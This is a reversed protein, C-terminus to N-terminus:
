HTAGRTPAHISIEGTRDVPEDRYKDSGTHSRPNFNSLSSLQRELCFRREGHPLTSQFSPSPFCVSFYSQTAGRTPAHISIDTLGDSNFWISTAGRTPAHISILLRFCRECGPRLDSGTHSRPNFDTAGWEPLSAGMTAGRTPAHISILCFGAIAM